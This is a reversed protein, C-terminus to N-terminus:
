QRKLTQRRYQKPSIGVSRRFMYYFHSLDGFGSQSAIETMSLDCDILLRKAKNLRYETMFQVITYGTTSKFLQLLRSRSIPFREVLGDITIRERYSATLYSVVERILRENGTGPSQRTRPDARLDGVFLIFEAVRRLLDLERMSEASHPLEALAATLKRAHEVQSDSLFYHSAASGGTLMDGVGGPAAPCLSDVQELYSESISLVYRSFTEDPPSFPHHVVHPGIVTLTGAHLPYLDDEVIYSGRGGLCLYIEYGDHRHLMRHPLAFTRLECHVPNRKLFGNTFEDLDYSGPPADERRAM